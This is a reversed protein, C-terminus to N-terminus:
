CTIFRLSLDSGAFHNYVFWDFCDNSTQATGPPIDMPALKELIM